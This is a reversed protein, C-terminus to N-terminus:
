LGAEEAGRRMTEYSLRAAEPEPRNTLQYVPIERVLNEVHDLLLCLKAPNGIKHLTQSLIKQVAEKENLRHMENKDGKELFCIGALPVKMNVNIGDKGCWPTGYAYWKYTAAAEDMSCGSGGDDDGRAPSVLRRLAPKDDNFIVAAEGWVQKYLRTHTSKGRGCPGSFLYAKGDLAVASAHLYLGNYNILQSCFQRGSELYAVSICNTGVPYLNFKYKGDDIIIQPQENQLSFYDQIRLSLGEADPVEVYLDAIQCLM